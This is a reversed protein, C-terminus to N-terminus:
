WNNRCFKFQPIEEAKQWLISSCCKEQWMKKVAALPFHEGSVPAPDWKCWKAAFVNGQIVAPCAARDDENCVWALRVGPLTKVCCDWLFALFSLSTYTDWSSCFICVAAQKTKNEKEKQQGWTYPTDSTDSPWLRLQFSRPTKPLCRLYKHMTHASTQRERDSFMRRNRWSSNLWLLSGCCKHSAWSHWKSKSLRGRASSHSQLGVAM